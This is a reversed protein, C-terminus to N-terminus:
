VPVTLSQRVYSPIPDGMFMVDQKFAYLGYLLDDPENPDFTSDAHEGLWRAAYWAWAAITNVSKRKALGALTGLPLELLARGIPSVEVGTAEPGLALLSLIPNLQPTMAQHPFPRLREHLNAWEDPPENRTTYAVAYWCGAQEDRKIARRQEFENAEPQNTEDAVIWPHHYPRSQKLPVPQTHCVWGYYSDWWGAAWAYPWKYRSIFRADYAASRPDTAVWPREHYEFNFVRPPLRRKEAEFSHAPHNLVLPKRENLEM